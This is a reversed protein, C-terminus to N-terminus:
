TGFSSYLSEKNKDHDKIYKNIAKVYEYTTHCIGCIIGTLLDLKVKTKKFAAQWALRPTSLLPVPDVEYVKFCMNQFNEFVDALLLTDIQVCLDHHEGLNNIKLDKCIRKVHMYDEDPVDEMNLHSYFDEKEPVSNKNFRKWDDM